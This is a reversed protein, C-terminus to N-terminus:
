APENRPPPTPVTHVLALRMKKTQSFKALNGRLVLHECEQQWFDHDFHRVHRGLHKARPSRWYCTNASLALNDGFLRGKSAMILKEACDYEVLDVTIPLTRRQFFPSPPLWFLIMALKHSRHMIPVTHWTLHYPTHAYVSRLGFPPPPSLGRGNMIMAIQACAKLQGLITSIGNCPSM